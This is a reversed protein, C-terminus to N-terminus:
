NRNADSGASGGDIRQMILITSTPTSTIRILVLPAIGPRKWYGTTLSANPSFFQGDLQLDRVLRDLEVREVATPSIGRCEVERADAFTMTTIIINNKTRTSQFTRLELKGLKVTAGAPGIGVMAHATAADEIDPKQDIAASCIDSFAKVIDNDHAREQARAACPALSLSMAVVILLRLMM